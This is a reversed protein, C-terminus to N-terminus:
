AAKKKGGAGGAKAPAAWRRLYFSLFLALLSAIYGLYFKTLPQPYACGYAVNVAGQTLMCVFQIMQALTLLQGWSCPQPLPRPIPVPTPQHNLARLHAPPPPNAHLQLM